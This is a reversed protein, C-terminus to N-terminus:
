ASMLAELCKELQMGHSGKVLVVDGAQLKPQLARAADEPKACAIWDIASAKGALAAQPGVTILGTLSCNSLSKGLERHYEESKTGLELMDGAVVFRRGTKFTKLTELAAAFSAPNANYADDIFTIGKAQKVAFRRSVGEFTQLARTCIDLPIGGSCAAAMAALANSVQHVGPVRLRCEALEDGFRAMFHACGNENIRIHKARVDATESLGFSICRGRLM